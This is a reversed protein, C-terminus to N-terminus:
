LKGKQINRAAAMAGMLLAGPNFRTPYRKLVAEAIERSTKAGGEVVEGFDLIYKKTAALHFPGTLEGPKM